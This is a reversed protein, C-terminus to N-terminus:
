ALAFFGGAQLFVALSKVAIHAARVAALAHVAGVAGVLLDSRGAGLLLGDLSSAGGLRPSAVGRLWAGGRGAAVAAAVLGTSTQPAERGDERSRM